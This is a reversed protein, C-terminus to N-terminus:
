ELRLLIVTASHAPFTYKLTGDRIDLEEGSLCITNPSAQSTVAQESAANLETVTATAIRADGVTVEAEIDETRHRNVVSLAVERGDESMTAAADIYSVGEMAPINGFAPSDFTPGETDCAIAIPRCSGGHLRFAHYLPTGWAGTRSTVIAPLVNVLQALNAMSVRGCMRWLLNFVGVALLADRLEYREAIGDDGTAALWVNWEDFAITVGTDAGLVQEITDAMLRLRREIDVPAAVISHYMDHRRSDDRTHPGYWHVSLCDVAEGAIELVTRNWDPFREPDAGVAILRIDPDAARMREAFPLFLRAYEDAPVNGIEWGGYTENGVGWWK